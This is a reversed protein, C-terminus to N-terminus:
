RLDLMRLIGGMDGIMKNIFYKIRRKFHNQLYKNIKLNM